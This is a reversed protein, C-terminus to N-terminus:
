AEEGFREVHREAVPVFVHVFIGDGAMWAIEVEGGGSSYAPILQSNRHGGLTRYRTLDLM